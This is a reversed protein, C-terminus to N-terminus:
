KSNARDIYKDIDQAEMSNPYDKIMTYAEAAKKYNGLSEYVRGAKKLYLPSIMDDSAKNAAKMFYDVAESAKDMSVYCDGILGILVPSVTKDSADFKKLYSIAKDYEGKHYLCIGAYGKALNGTKTLGYQDIIADFGIFQASDGYLAKDWENNQLYFEGRFIAKEAEREKPILYGHRVGLVAVVILVVVVLGTIIGKKNKEIFQESKSFIEGVNSELENEAKKTTVNKAKNSM